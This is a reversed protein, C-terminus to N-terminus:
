EASVLESWPVAKYVKDTDLAKVDCTKAKPLVKIVEVQSAKKAGKPKYKMVDGKELTVEAEEEEEDEDKFLRSDIEEAAAMQASVLATAVESWTGYDDTSIDNDEAASTLLAQAEQNKKDAKKGLALYDVFEEAEAEDDDGSEDDAESADDEDESTDGEGKDSADDDVEEEEEDEVEVDSAEGDDVFGTALGDFETRTRPNPYAKTAEGKWTHFYFHPGETVLGDLIPGLDDWDTGELDAGLLKLQNMAEDVLDEVSKGPREKTGKTPTFYMQKDARLGACDEPRKVIGTLTLYLSGKNNGEKTKGFKYSTFQAVGRTIGTPLDIRGKAEAPKDRNKKYAGPALKKLTAISASVSSTGETKSTKTKTAVPM